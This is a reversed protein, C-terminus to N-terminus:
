RLYLNEVLDCIHCWSYENKTDNSNRVREVEMNYRHEDSLDSIKQALDKPNGVTFTIGTDTDHFYETFGHLNSALLPKNFVYATQPIGSQSMTIYPCVIYKCNKILKVLEGNSLRKNLIKYCDYNKMKELYPDSGKGAVVVKYEGLNHGLINLAEYLIRLGKYPLIAGFFLIYKDPLVLSSEKVTTYTNFNGFHIINVNSPNVEKYQLLDNYSNNSYVQVEINNEFIYKLLKNPREFDPNFHNCVEHLSVVQRTRVKKLLPLFGISYYGGVYNVLDYNKDNLKQAFSTLRYNNSIKRLNRVIPINTFPRPLKLCYLNFFKSDIYTSFSSYMSPPILQVGSKTPVYNCDLAEMERIESYTFLYVDVAYGRDIFEKALPLTSGTFGRTLIAIKKM